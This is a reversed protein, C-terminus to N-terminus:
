PPNSQSREPHWAPADPDLLTLLIQFAALQDATMEAILPPTACIFGPAANPPRVMVSVSAWDIALNTVLQNEAGPGVGGEHENTEVLVAGTTPAEIVKVAVQM